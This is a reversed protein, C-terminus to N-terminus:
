HQTSMSDSALTETYIHRSILLNRKAPHCCVQSCDFTVFAHQLMQDHIIRLGSWCIMPKPSKQKKWKIKNLNFNQTNVQM